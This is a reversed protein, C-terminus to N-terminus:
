GSWYCCVGRSVDYDSLLRRWSLGDVYRGFGFEFAAAVVVWTIGIRTAQVPTPYARRVFGRIITIFLVCVVLTGLQHARFERGGPSVV